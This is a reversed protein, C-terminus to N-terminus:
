GEQKRTLQDLKWYTTMASNLQPNEEATSSLAVAHRFPSTTQQLDLKQCIEPWYDPESCLREYSIPIMNSEKQELLPLLYAYADIWRQLWYDIQDPSGSPQVAETFLFPRHTAGFEHHALWTMYKKTFVDPNKFKRHQTLLSEAQTIPHRFVVLYTNEKTQPALSAIRLIHNNNKALYRPRGYKKCVLDQYISLQKVTEADISHPRLADAGIYSTGCHLRWFVEELAEPSDFGVQIGDGHAREQQIAPKANFGSIKAWLNPSLVFPMDDYTLSAFQETAHLARMLATTGARALGTVYVSKNNNNITSKFFNKEIDFLLESLIPNDLAIHHLLRDIKSYGSMKKKNELFSLAILM